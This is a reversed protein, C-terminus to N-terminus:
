SKFTKGNFTTQNTLIKSEKLRWGQPTKLWSDRSTQDIIIKNFGAVTGETKQEIAVDIANGKIDINKITAKNSTLKINFRNFLNTYHERFEALNKREGEPSISVYDPTFLSTAAIIDKRVFAANIKDYSTQITPQIKRDIQANVSQITVIAVSVLGGIIASRIPTSLSMQIVSQNCQRSQRVWEISLEQVTPSSPSHTAPRNASM